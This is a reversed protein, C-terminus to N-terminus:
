NFEGSHMPFKLDETRNMWYNITDQPTTDIGFLQWMFDDKEHYLNIIRIIKDEIRYFVYNRPVFLYLTTLATIIFSQCPPFIYIEVTKDSIRSFYIGEGCLLHVRKM